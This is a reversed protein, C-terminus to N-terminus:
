SILGAMHRGYSDPEGEGVVMDIGAGAATVTAAIVVIVQVEDGGGQRVTGRLHHAEEGRHLGQLRGHPTLGRGPEGAGPHRLAHNRYLVRGTHIWIGIVIVVGHEM